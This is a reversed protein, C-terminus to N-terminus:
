WKTRQDDKVQVKIIKALYFSYSFPVQILNVLIKATTPFLKM